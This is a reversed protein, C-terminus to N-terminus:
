KRSLNVLFFPEPLDISLRTTAFSRATHEKMVFRVSKIADINVSPDADVAVIDAWYSRELVGRTKEIGLLEAANVTMTQLIYSPPVAAAKWNELVRFNSQLRNMGPLDVIVDTGYAMKTGVKYARRLRDAIGNSIGKAQEESMGYAHLNEWYLDTGVLFTGKEKM